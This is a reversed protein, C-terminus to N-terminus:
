EESAQSSDSLRPKGTFKNFYPHQSTPHHSLSLPTIQRGERGKEGAGRGLGGEGAALSGRKDRLDLPAWSGVRPRQM